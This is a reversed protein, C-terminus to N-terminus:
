RDYKSRIPPEELKSTNNQQEMIKRFLKDALIAMASAIFGLVAVEWLRNHNHRDFLTLYTMTGVLVLLLFRLLGHKKIDTNM